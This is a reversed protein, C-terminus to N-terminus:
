RDYPDEGAAIRTAAGRAHALMADYLGGGFSIRAVGLAALRPLTPGEPVCLANVPAPIRRVLEALVDEDPPLIPYVCDAGAAVYAEARSVADDVLEDVLEDPPAGAPGRRRLFVDVRANIVLEPAAARVAALWEAQEEAAVLTGQPHATDELNCGVAGTALLREAFEAPPLGYGAEADVTLPVDLERAARAIREAAAFMEEVPAQQRDAYGLSAAIGSSPTALAAFGAEAYVRATGADWVNPLVLPHGQHHLERLRKALDNM